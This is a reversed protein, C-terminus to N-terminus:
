YDFAPFPLLLPAGPKLSGAYPSLGPLWPVTFIVGSRLARVRCYHGVTAGNYSSLHDAESASWNPPVAPKRESCARGKLPPSKAYIHDPTQLM